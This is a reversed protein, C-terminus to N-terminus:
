DGSVITNPKDAQKFSIGANLCTRIAELRVADDDSNRIIDYLADMIVKDIM